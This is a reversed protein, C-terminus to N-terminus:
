CLGSSRMVDNLIVHEVSSFVKKMANGDTACTKHVYLMGEKVDGAATFEQCIFEYADEANNGKYGKFCKNLPNKEIKQLLLLFSETLL